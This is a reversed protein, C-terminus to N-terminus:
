FHKGTTFKGAFKMWRPEFWNDIRIVYLRVPEYDRALGIVLERVREMFENSDRQQTSLFDELTAFMSAESSGVVIRTRWIQAQALHLLGTLVRGPSAPQSFQVQRFASKARAEIRSRDPPSCNVKRRLGVRHPRGKTKSNGTRRPSPLDAIM